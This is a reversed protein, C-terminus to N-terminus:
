GYFFTAKTVGASLDAYCSTECRIGDGPIPVYYANTQGATAAGLPTDLILVTTGGSGGDKITITGATSDAVYYVGLLRAPGAFVDGDANLHTSKVNVIYTGM